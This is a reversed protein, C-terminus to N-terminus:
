RLVKSKNLRIHEDIAYTTLLNALKSQQYRVWPAKMGDGGWKAADSNVKRSKDEKDKEFFKMKLPSAPNNRAMSSHHVIRSEGRKEAALELLDWCDSALFFHSLHNVQITEEHKDKSRSQAGGMIGANNCLVDLGTHECITHLDEVANKVSSMRALDCTVHKAPKVIGELKNIEAVAETARDSKRNLMLVYAGKLACTKALTFGTGTTCGTIAVVKGEMSPLTKFVEDYFQSAPEPAVQLSTCNGM